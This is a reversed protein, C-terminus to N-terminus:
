ERLMHAQVEIRGSTSLVYNVPTNGDVPVAILVSFPDGPRLVSIDEPQFEIISDEIGRQQLISRGRQAAADSTVTRRAAARATEYAAVTASQKLLLRISIELTGFILTFLVPLLLATEVTAIGRRQQKSRSLGFRRSRGGRQARPHLKSM